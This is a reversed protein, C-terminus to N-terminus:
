RLSGAHGRDDRAARARARPRSRRGLGGRGSVGPGGGRQHGARSRGAAPTGFRVFFPAQEPPRRLRHWRGGTRVARTAYDIWDGDPLYIDQEGDAATVPAVLLDRGLLYQGDADRTARDAPYAAIMPRILTRGQQVAEIASSYLYPLLRYRTAVIDRTAAYVEPGQDWPLRSTTGHYRNLPSLAGFWAWRLYLDPAPTGYFGHYAYGGGPLGTRGFPVAWPAGTVDTDDRQQSALASDALFGFLGLRHTITVVIVGHRVLAAPNRDDSEGVVLAGGHIWVMVPLNRGGTGNQPQAGAPTYVNLYLCDESTSAM